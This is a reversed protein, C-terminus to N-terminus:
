TESEAIYLVKIFCLVNFHMQNKFTNVVIILDLCDVSVAWDFNNVGLQMLSLFVLLYPIKRAIFDNDFQMLIDFLPQSCKAVM